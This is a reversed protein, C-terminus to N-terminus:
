VGMGPQHSARPASREGVAFANRMQSEPRRELSPAWTGARAQSRASAEQTGPQVGERGNRGPTQAASLLHAMAVHLRHLPTNVTKTAAMSNQRGSAPVRACCPASALLSLKRKVM